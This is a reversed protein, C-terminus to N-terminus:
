RLGREGPVTRDGYAFIPESADFSEAVGLILLM